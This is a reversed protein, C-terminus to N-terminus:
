KKYEKYAAGICLLILLASSAFSIKEGTAYLTPEFKFEVKHNGSPIRMARLIYNCRFYNSPKGDIYANWGDKYYIESFVALEENNSKSEYHLYNPQYETLKISATSDGKSTYGDLDTKFKTDVIATKAPDFHYLATIESDANNVIKFEKVFWANGLAKPNVQVASQGNEAPVIIYKTNLMNIVEPTVKKNQFDMHFEIMEQYRKLKAGHYGGISKHFYSTSADNFTSVTLNLVRFDPDNDKSIQLDAQSPTYPVKAEAKNVFNDKNLFRKDVTWMDVLLLFILGTFLLRKDFKSKFYIWITGAALLVMFFSRLADSKLIAERAIKINDLFLQAVDPSNNKTVQSYIENYEDTKFVTTLSGPMLYYLLALGGTLSFALYFLKELTLATSMFPIKIKQKFIDPSKILKDIALVALIPITLEALVLIMSVARFKNYGPFHDLFFSTLGMFNKGWSLLISVITAILLMWKLRGEVIFLGLLGLFVIIAGAYVPLTFPQDGWYEDVQGINERLQADVKKLVDKNEGGGIRGSPGGKFNPILLTMTESKGISWGTAYDKDLGSTKNGENSSLDSNITLDSKGRTTYKGYDYTAWLNSINSGIALVLAIMLVGVSKLYPTFVKSRIAYVFEVIGYILLFIFLYYTIQLHNTYLELSLFIATLIGGKLYNSRFTLIVGALVPAMYAIAHAKSNHGAGLIIFFYSSFAFAIAGFVSLWPDIRLTLLLIYFGLLNLFLLGAPHPLGLTLIKDLYVILNAKYFVSIQYAPMGGFMSNTWLPEQHNKDRYDAIEKSMGKFNIIDSQHIEKGDMLPSFYVLSIAVFVLITVIHPIFAKLNFKM